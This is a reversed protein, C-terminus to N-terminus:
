RGHDHALYAGPGFRRPEEDVRVVRVERARICGSYPEAQMARRLVDTDDIRCPHRAIAVVMLPHPIDVATAVSRARQKAGGGLLVRAHSHM